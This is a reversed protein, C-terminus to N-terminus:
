ILGELLEDVTTGLALALQQARQLTLDSQGTEIRSLMSPHIGHRTAFELQSTEGRLTRIKVGLLRRFVQPTLPMKATPHCETCGCPADYGGGCCREPDIHNCREGIRRGCTNLPDYGRQDTHKTLKMNVGDFVPIWRM